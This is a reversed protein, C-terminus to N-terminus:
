KEEEEEEEYHKELQATSLEMVVLYNLSFTYNNGENDLFSIFPHEVTGGLVSSALSTADADELLGMTVPELQNRYFLTVKNEFNKKDSYGTDRTLTYRVAQIDNVSISVDRGDRTNFSFFKFKDEPNREQELIEQIRRWAGPRVRYVLIEKLSNMQFELFCDIEKVKEQSM